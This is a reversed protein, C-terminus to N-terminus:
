CRPGLAQVSQKMKGGLGWRWFALYAAPLRATFDRHRAQMRRGQPFSDFRLPLMLSRAGSCTTSGVHTSDNLLFIARVQQLETRQSLM